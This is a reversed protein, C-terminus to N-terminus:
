SDTPGSKLADRVWIETRLVRKLKDLGEEFEARVGTFTHSYGPFERRPDSEFSVVVTDFDYPNLPQSGNRQLIRKLDLFRPSKQQTAFDSVLSEAASLNLDPIHQYFGLECYINWDNVHRGWEKDGKGVQLYLTGGDTRYKM